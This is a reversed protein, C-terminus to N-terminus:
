EEGWDNTQVMCEVNVGNVIPGTTFRKKEMATTFGLLPDKGSGVSAVSPCGDTFFAARAQVTSCPEECFGAPMVSPCGNTFVM